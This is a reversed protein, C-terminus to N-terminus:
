IDFLSDLLEDLQRALWDAKSSARELFDTSEDLNAIRGFRLEARVCPSVAGSAPSFCTDM